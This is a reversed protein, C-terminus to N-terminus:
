LNTLKQERFINFTNGRYVTENGIFRYAIHLSNHCRSIVQISSIASEIREPILSNLKPLDIKLLQLNQLTYEELQHKSLALNEKVSTQQPSVSNSQSAKEQISDPFNVQPKSDVQAPHPFESDVQAPHPFESDVKDVEHEKLVRQVKKTSCDLKVGIQKHTLGQNKLMLVEEYSIEKKMTKHKKTLLNNESQGTSLLNRRMYVGKMEQDGGRRLLPHLKIYQHLSTSLSITSLSKFSHIEVKVLKSLFMEENFSYTKMWNENSTEKWWLHYIIKAEAFRKKISCLNKDTIYKALTLKPLCIYGYNKRQVIKGVQLHAAFAYQYATNREKVQFTNDIWQVIEEPLNIRTVLKEKKGKRRKRSQKEPAAVTPQGGESFRNKNHQKPICNEQYPAANGKLPKEGAIKQDAVCSQYIINQSKMKNKKPEENLYFSSRLAM